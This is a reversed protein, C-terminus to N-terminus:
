RLGISFLEKVKDQPSEPNDLRAARRIFVVVRQDADVKM